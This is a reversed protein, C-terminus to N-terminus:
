YLSRSFSSSHSYTPHVPFGSSPMKGVGAELSPWAPSPQAGAAQPWRFPTLQTWALRCSLRLVDSLHVAFALVLPWSAPKHLLSPALFPYGPPAHCKLLLSDPVSAAPLSAGPPCDCTTNISHSSRSNQGVPTQLVPGLLHIRCGYSQAFPFQYM